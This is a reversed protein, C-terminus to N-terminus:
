IMCVDNTAYPSISMLDTDNQTTNNSWGQAQNNNPGPVMNADGTTIVFGGNMGLQTNIATFYGYANPTGTIVVNSMVVGNGSLFTAIQAPSGAPSITVQAFCFVPLLGTLLLLKKM